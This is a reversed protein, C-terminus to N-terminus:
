MHFLGNQCQCGDDGGGNDQGGGCARLADANADAVIAAHVTTVTVVIAIMAGFKAPIVVTAPMAAPAIAVADYHDLLATM